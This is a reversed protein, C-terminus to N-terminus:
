DYDSHFLGMVKLFITWESQKNQYVARALSIRAKQGGSLASGGEGIDSNDGGLDEIDKQLACAWLVKRYRNEDFTEGWLINERVSGHQLWTHQSVYAMGQDTNQLHIGGSILKMNGNIANLFATKGSGVPGEVCILDGQFQIIANQFSIANNEYHFIM